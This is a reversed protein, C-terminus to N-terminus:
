MLWCKWLMATTPVTTTAPTTVRNQGHPQLAPRGSIHSFGRSKQSFYEEKRRGAQFKCAAGLPTTMKYGHPLQCFGCVTSHFVLLIRPRPHFKPAVTEAGVNLERREPPTLFLLPRLGCLQQGGWQCLVQTNM